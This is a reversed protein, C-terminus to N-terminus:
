SGPDVVAPDALPPMVVVPCDAALVLKPAVLSTRLTPLRRGHAEGIVLLQADHAASRLAKLPSGKVVTCEVAEAGSGLAAGVFDQLRDRARAEHDEGATSLGAPPRGGSAAPPRPARWAM